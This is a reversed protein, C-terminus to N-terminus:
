PLQEFCYLRAETSCRVTGFATWESNEDDSEGAEGYDTAEASTWGACDATGSDGNGAATGDLKTATWVYSFDVDDLEETVSIPSELLEALADFNAAVREGDLRYYPRSSKIFREAPSPSSLWAKFTGPLGAAAALSACEADASLVGSPGIAGTYTKSTIFVAPDCAGGSCRHSACSSCPDLADAAAESAADNAADTKADAHAADAATADAGADRDEADPTGSEHLSAEVGADTSGDDTSGDGAAHKAPDESCGAVALFAAAIAAIGTTACRRRM